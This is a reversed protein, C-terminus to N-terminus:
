KRMRILRLKSRVHSIWTAIRGLWGTNMRRGGERQQKTDEGTHLPKRCLISDTRQAIRDGGGEAIAVYAAAPQCTWVAACNSGVAATERGAATMTGWGKTLFIWPPVKTTSLRRPPNLLM